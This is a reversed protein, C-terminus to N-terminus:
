REHLSIGRLCSKEFYNETFHTITVQRSGKAQNHKTNNVESTMVYYVNCSETFDIQDKQM